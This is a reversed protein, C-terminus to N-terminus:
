RRRRRIKWFIVTAFPALLLYLCSAPRSTSETGAGVVSAPTCAGAPNLASAASGFVSSVEVTDGCESFDAVIQKDTWSVISGTEAVGGIVSTIGTGSDTADVYGSFGSGTVSVTGGSCNASDIVVLPKVAIVTPNSVKPGKQARLVYKGATSKGPVSVVMESESVSAAALSTTSGDPATLTANSTLEQGEILNTFAAGALTVDAGTGASMVSVDASQVYPIVPGSYPAISATSTFGHCGFCDDDNGVHGYYADEDGVVISGDGDSDVQINHLSTPATAGKM